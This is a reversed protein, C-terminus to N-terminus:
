WGVRRRILAYPDYPDSGDPRLDILAGIGLREAHAAVVEVAVLDELSWGTSDFVTTTSRHVDYRARHKVLQTLDPGIADVPLQQCEGEAICQSRVDPCVLARDLLARPLEVKGAFDAGVANVHLWPRHEVDPVVPGQGPDVSTCTCLVDVQGVLREADVAEVPVGLFALREGLSEANAASADAALVRSLPRVRSIAHVQTVAQAGAGIVGVAVEGDRALIDTAVASAVGTRLATLLTAEALVVLEGTATDYLATSALVSPIGRQVPNTPHYGVTKIAVARGLEMSPMWELLGLDPKEYHFGDRDPTVLVEEDHDDLAHVLAEILEDLLRDLGVATVIDALDNAGLVRTQV